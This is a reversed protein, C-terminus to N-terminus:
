LINKRSRLYLEFGFAQIVKTLTKLTPNGRNQELEELTRKTVGVKKAFDQRNIGTMKRMKFISEGISFEGNEISEYLDKKESM